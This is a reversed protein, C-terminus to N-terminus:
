RGQPFELSRGPPRPMREGPGPMGPQPLLGQAMLLLVGGAVICLAAWIFGAVHRYLPRERLRLVILSLGMIILAVGNLLLFWRPM